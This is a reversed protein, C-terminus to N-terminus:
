KYFDKDFLSFPYEEPQKFFQLQKKEKASYFSLEGSWLAIQYWGRKKVFLPNYKNDGWIGYGIHSLQVRIQHHRGTYLYVKLLSLQGYEREEITNLLQYSLVAEKANSIMEKVVSSTNSKSNKLLFNQLTKEKEKPKGCVVAYYAKKLQKKQIQKSLNAATNKTKAFVMIGGVPRDLRHVLQVEKGEEELYDLMSKDGTKDPQSPVKPPKVCVIYDNDEYLIEM